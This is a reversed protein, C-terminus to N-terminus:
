NVIQTLEASSAQFDTSGNYTATIPHSGKALTSTTFKAIGSSLTVTGLTTTGDAFTVTGTVSGGFGATARAAFTVSQGFTSPNPSSILKTTTSAQNVIQSIAKSTSATFNTDGPYVATISTTGVSLTSISFSATGKSLTGTGLVTSGQEFTVTEGDPPAGVSSTVRARLMVSQGYASPNPASSLATTTTAPINVKSVFADTAGKGFITQFAGPTTTFGSGTAGTVYANDGGDVAVGLGDDNQLSGGLITSYVLASGSANFKSLFVDYSGRFRMLSSKLPFDSSDAGGTVYANGTRDLAISQGFDIYSGGLYTSYALASGTPNLKTVFVNIIGHNAAQFPNMTPFDTSYTDGTIYASGNSDIVIGRGFDAGSGGLYTSYILASGTANIETVFADGSGNNFAQIPNMTPFNTSQTYGTIFANGASDVVVGNGADSGNGGLYTSYVLASGTQNLKTVFADDNSGGFTTQFAGPTTPFGTGTWGTVYAFGASDLTIGYAYGGASGGLYTSYVLGSGQPNIKSVFPTGGGSCPTCTTQFAGPTTPFDSSYTYGAVYANGESDVTIGDGVNASSGGLYTSYMLASGTPNLKVVFADANGTGCGTCNTQFAGATTPFNTSYTYGTVYANGTNDVVISNGTDNNNGGLYTSYILPDIYLARSPDYEDVEFTIKRGAVVYRAGIDRRIGDREQYVTPKHWSIEGERVQMVLEGQSTHRIRQAGRVDFAVRHPDAGPAVIFDYELQQQNGYYVMDIGPYIGEYKVKSYTPVNRSWKAPDNGILYNSTGRLKDVGVIRAKPNANRLSARLVSGAFIPASSFKDAVRASRMEHHNAKKGVLVFVAENQTLFLTYRSNRSIFKVRGDSQGQNAEFSLPLKGYRDHLLAQDKVDV